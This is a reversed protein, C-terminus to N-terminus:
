AGKELTSPAHLPARCGNPAVQVGRLGSCARGCLSSSKSATRRSRALRESCFRLAFAAVQMWAAHRPWWARLFSRACNIPVQSAVYAGSTPFGSACSAALSTAPSTAAHWKQDAPRAHMNGVSMCPFCRGNASAPWACHWLGGGPKHLHEKSSCMCAAQQRRHQVQKAWRQRQGDLPLQAIDRTGAQCQHQARAAAHASLCAPQCACQATRLARLHPTLQVENQAWSLAHKRHMHPPPYMYM